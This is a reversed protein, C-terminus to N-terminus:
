MPTVTSARVYGRCVRGTHGRVLVAFGEGWDYRPHMVPGLAVVPTDRPIEGMVNSKDSGDFRADTRVVADVITRMRRSYDTLEGPGRAWECTGSFEVAAQEVEPAV